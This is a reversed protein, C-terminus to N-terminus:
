RVSQRAVELILRRTAEPIPPWAAALPEIRSCAAGSEADSAGERGIYAVGRAQSVSENVLGEPGNDSHIHGPVGRTTM